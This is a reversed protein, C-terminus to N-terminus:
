RKRAQGNKLSASVPQADRSRASGRPPRGDAAAPNAATPGAATQLTARMLGSEGAVPGTAGRRMELTLCGSVVVSDRCDDPPPKASTDSRRGDPNEDTRRRSSRPPRAVTTRPRIEGPKPDRQRRHDPHAREPSEQRPAESGDPHRATKRTTMAPTVNKRCAIPSCGAAAPRQTRRTGHAAPPPLALLAPRTAPLRAEGYRPVPHTPTAVVRCRTRFRIAPGRRRRIRVIPTAM